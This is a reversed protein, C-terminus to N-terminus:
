RPKVVLQFPAMVLYSLGAVAPLAGKSRGTPRRVGLLAGHGAQPERTSNAHRGAKVAM